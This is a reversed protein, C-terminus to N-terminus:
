LMYNIGILISLIRTTTKMLSSDKTAWFEPGFNSTMFINWSRRFEITWKWELLCTHRTKIMRTMIKQGDMKAPRGSQNKQLRWNPQGDLNIWACRWINFNPSPGDAKVVCQLSLFDNLKFPCSKYPGRRDYYPKKLRIDAIEIISCTHGPLLWLDRLEVPKKQAAWELSVLIQFHLSILIM